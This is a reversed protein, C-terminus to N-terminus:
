LGYCLKLIGQSANLQCESPHMKPAAHALFISVSVPGCPDRAGFDVHTGGHAAFQLSRTTVVIRNGPSGQLLGELDPLFGEPSTKTPWIDDILFLIKKGHFWIAANTVASTLSKSSEVGAASTTAGTVRMINCLESAVDGVTASAGVSVYLVGHAFHTKIDDERGLGIHATAKGVEPM